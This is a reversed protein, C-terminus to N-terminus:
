PRDGRTSELAFEQYLGLLRDTILGPSGTGISKGDIQVVPAVEKLTSALFVEDAEFLDERSVPREEARVGAAPCLGLLFSRTLGDLIGSSLDPTVVVKGKVLFVNSSTAEALRGEPNLLLAEYAGAADAEKKALWLDPNGSFKVAPVFGGPNWRPRSAVICRVGREHVPAAYPPLPGAYACWRVPGELPENWGPFQTGPSLALRLSSEEPERLVALERLAGAMSERPLAGYGMRMAGAELRDLHEDLGFPRAHYTRLTEYLGSGYLYAHDTAAIGAERPRVPANEGGVWVWRAGRVTLVELSFTYRV